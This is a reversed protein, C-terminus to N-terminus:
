ATITAGQPQVLDSVVSEFVAQDALISHTNSHVIGCLTDLGLISFPEEIQVGVEEIGLLLFSIIAQAPIVRWSLDGMLGLPLLTLFLMLCRSTMRTYSLPIPTRMIRECKGLTETLATLTHDMQHLIHQGAYGDCAKRQNAAKMVATMMCLVHQPISPSKLAGELEKPKLYQELQRRFQARDGGAGTLLHLKLSVAFANVYRVLQMTLEKEEEKFWLVAQRILDRSGNILGGLVTRAEWWRAYSANTRFVLLLSLPSVALSFPSMPLKINLGTYTQLTYFAAALLTFVTIPPLIGKFVNSQPTGIVHRWYRASSRHGIWEEPGYLRFCSSTTRPAEKVGAEVTMFTRFINFPKKISANVRDDESHSSKSTEEDSSGTTEREQAQEARVRLTVRGQVRLAGLARTRLPRLKSPVTARLVSGHNGSAFKYRGSIRIAM